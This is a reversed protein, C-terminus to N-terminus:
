RKVELTEKMSTLWLKRMTEDEDNNGTTSRQLIEKRSITIKGYLFMSLHMSKDLSVKNEQKKHGM